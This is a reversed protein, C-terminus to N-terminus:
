YCQREQDYALALELSEIEQELRTVVIETDAVLCQLSVLATRVRNIFGARRNADVCLNNAHAIRMTLRTCAKKYKNDMRTVESLTLVQLMQERQEDSFLTDRPEEPILNHKTTLSTDHEAEFALAHLRLILSDVTEKNCNKRANEYVEDLHAAAESM